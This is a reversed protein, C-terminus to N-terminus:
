RLKGLGQDFDDPILFSKSYYEVVIEEDNIKLSRAEPLSLKSVTRTRGNAQIAYNEKLGLASIIKEAQHESSSGETSRLAEIIKQQIIEM